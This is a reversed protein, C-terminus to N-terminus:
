NLLGALVGEKLSYTSMSVDVLGLKQMTYITLLSATVIMDVRVPIIGKTSARKAHSSKVLREILDLLDDTDFEYSKTKKLDFSKGKELEIVEAFSEFAGSSGILTTPKHEMAAIFLPALHQNLYATMAKISILPIPDTKHFKDMLRAAGIEFSQKWLVEENNGIIFEVSGGGIDIILANERTLVGSAKIGEYIFAAEQEGDIIEIQIGAKAQVEAIFDNGNAANRLASTAIARVETASAEDINKKFDQMAKIGRNFAAQQIIGKNIGGEGIKVAETQHHIVNFGDAGAEAIILHFTNTGLDMVAVRKAPSTNQEPM